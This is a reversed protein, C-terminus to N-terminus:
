KEEKKQLRDELELVHLVYDEDYLIPFYQYGENNFRDRLESTDFNHVTITIQPTEVMRVGHLPIYLWIWNRIKFYLRWLTTKM